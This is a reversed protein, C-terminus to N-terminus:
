VTSFLTLALWLGYGVALFPVLPLESKPTVRGLALAVLAWLGGIVWGLGLPLLGQGQPASLVIGAMLAVDGWGLLGLLCLACCLAALALACSLTLLDGRLGCFLALGLAWFLPPWTTVYGTKWDRVGQVLLLAFTCFQLFIM